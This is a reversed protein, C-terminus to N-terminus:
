AILKINKLPIQFNSNFSEATEKELIDIEESAEKPSKIWGNLRGAEINFKKMFKQNIKCHINGNMYARITMFVGDAFKLEILKGAKCEHNYASEIGMFGLNTAITIIDNIHSHTSDRLGGKYDHSYCSYNNTDYFNNRCQFILRYDLSYHTYEKNRLACAYKWGDEILKKNSKYNKVNEPSSMWLYIEKLQEDLYFNVNKIAWLVVAYANDITFDVSTHETLKNLLKDRSSKTLRETLSTMNDFLETWYLNKLGKIKLQLGEKLNNVNVGLEKLISYDLSEIAKYNQLLKDFDQRYLEELRDIINQGKILSNKLNQKRNGTHSLDDSEKTEPAEQIKFHKDFWISFPDEVPREEYHMTKFTIKVIDINARAKRDAELFDFSGLIKYRGKRATIADLLNKQKRWRGPIVLYITKCNAENIIKEAWESYASYPPNCFIVDVQKDILTQQYFDTGIVFVDAPLANLLISSKEIAYKIFTTSYSVNYKDTEEPNLKELIQFFNGNGAGIDLISVKNANNLKLDNSIVRIIEETTPYFEMDQNNEKLSNIILQNENM